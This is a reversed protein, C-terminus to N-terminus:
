HALAEEVASFASKGGEREDPMGTAFWVVGAGGQRDVWLGAQLGYASGSHGVRPVGDDFPDDRCGKAPTALTQMALGYRCFFGADDDGTDEEYTLGNGPRYQWEPTAM